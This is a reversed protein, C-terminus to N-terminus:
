RSADTGDHRRGPDRDHDPEGRRGVIAGATWSDRSVELKLRNDGPRHRGEEGPIESRGLTDQRMGGAM